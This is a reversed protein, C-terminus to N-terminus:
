GTSRQGGESSQAVYEVRVIEDGRFCVYDDGREFPDPSSRDGDWKTFACFGGDSSILLTGRFPVVFRRGDILELEIPRFPEQRYMRRLEEVLM